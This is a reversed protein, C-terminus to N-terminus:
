ETDHYAPMMPKRVIPAYYHLGSQTGSTDIATGAEANALSTALKFTDPDISGDSYSGTIVFYYTDASLGTPLAGTTTLIIKDGTAFGHQEASVVGPSAITVTFPKYDRYNQWDDLAM